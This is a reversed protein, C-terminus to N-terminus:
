KGEARAIHAVTLDVYQSWFRQSLDHGMGDIEEFTAGKILEATRKGGSIDILPDRNGHMVLHPVALASLRARRHGSALIAGVQRQTGDPRSARDFLMAGKIAMADPDFVEDNNVLIHTMKVFQNVADARDVVPGMLDLMSELVGEAPGGYGSEGTTSQVSTLSKARDPHEIAVTQAIMAGMSSGWLHAADIGLHDLLGVLDAAMDSLLYGPDSGGVTLGADRNDFRIVRLGRDVFSYCLEEPYNLCQSGLGAILVLVPDEPSGFEDFYIQLDGHPACAMAIM